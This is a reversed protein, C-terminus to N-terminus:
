SQPWLIKKATESAIEIFIGRFAHAAERGIESLVRKWRTAAVITKPTDAIIDDLDKALVAKEEETLGELEGVLERAAELGKETWPYPAGCDHCFSPAPPSPGGIAIGMHYVGRIDAGCRQCGTITPAGCKDCFKKSRQPAIKLSRTITHGNVCIQAVDYWPKSRM